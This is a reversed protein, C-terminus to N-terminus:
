RVTLTGEMGGKRHGPVSCYFTYKGPKLDASVTSTGGQAITKGQRNIGAGEISVNHSLPSPNNMVISVEGAGAELTKTNFRVQGGPDARLTLKTAGGSGSSSGGGNGDGGCGALILAAVVPLTVLQLTRSRM